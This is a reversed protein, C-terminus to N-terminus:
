PLTVVTVKGFEHCLLSTTSPLHMFMTCTGHLPGLVCPRFVGATATASHAFLTISKCAEGRGGVVKFPSM